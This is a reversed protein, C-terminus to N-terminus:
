INVVPLIIRPTVVGRCLRYGPHTEELIHAHATQM